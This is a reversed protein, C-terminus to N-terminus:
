NGVGMLKTDLKKYIGHGNGQSMGPPGLQAIGSQNWSQVLAALEAIDKESFGAMTLNM